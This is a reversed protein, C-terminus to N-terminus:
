VERGPPCYKEHESDGYFDIQGNTINFHSKCGVLMRISRSHGDPADVFTFDDISSGTQRWSPGPYKPEKDLFPAWIRHSWAKGACGPCDFEVSHAQALDDTPHKVYDAGMSFLQPNLSRFASM